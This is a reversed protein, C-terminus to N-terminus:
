CPCCGLSRRLTLPTRNRFKTSSTTARSTISPDFGYFNLPSLRKPVTLPKEAEDAEHRRKNAIRSDLGPVLALTRVIM